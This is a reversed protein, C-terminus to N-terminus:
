YSEEVLTVVAAWFKVGSENALTCAQSAFGLSAQV